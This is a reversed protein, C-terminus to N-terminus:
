VEPAVYKAFTYTGTASENAETNTKHTMVAEVNFVVDTATAADLGNIEVMYFYTGGYTVANVSVNDSVKISTYVSTTTTDTPDVTYDQGNHTFSINFGLSAYDALDAEDVRLVGVFRIAKGDDSEQVYISVTEKLAASAATLFTGVTNNKVATQWDVFTNGLAATFEAKTIKQHTGTITTTGETAFARNKGSLDTWYCNSIAATGNKINGIIDGNVGSSGTTDTYTVTGLNFCNSVTTEGTTGNRGLIGGVNGAGTVTGLNVCNEITVNYNNGNGVIGGAYKGKQESSGTKGNHVATVTGAFVCNEFEAGNTKNGVMGVIGGATDGPVYVIAESYINIFKDYDTALTDSSNYTASGCISGVGQGGTGTFYSNLIALNQVTGGEINRFLGVRGNTASSADAYIGSISYGQGDFLGQFTGTKWVNPPATSSATWGENLDINATLKVTKGLFKKSGSNMLKGFGLLQAATSIEFETQDEDYWTDDPTIAGDAGVSIMGVPLLGLLMVVTLLISITRKTKKM